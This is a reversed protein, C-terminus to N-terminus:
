LIELVLDYSRGRRAAAGMLQLQAM